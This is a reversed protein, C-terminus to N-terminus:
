RRPGARPRAGGRRAPTARWRRCCAGPRRRPRASARPSRRRCGTRSRCGRDVVVRVVVPLLVAPQGVRRVVRDDEGARRAQGLAGLEAADVHHDPQPADSGAWASPALLDPIPCAEGSSTSGRRPRADSPARWDGRPSLAGGASVKPGNPLASRKFQSFAFFRFLFIELWKRDDALDYQRRAAEPFDIPWLGASADHWAHWALFAVKSPPQGYRLIHYLFFDHLEYPGIRAETSQMAGDADAPVLEPSIETDLIAELVADTPPTSSTRPSAWRILYQILTKPVGANVGYHSM